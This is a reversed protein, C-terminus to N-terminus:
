FPSEIQRRCEQAYRPYVEAIKSLITSKYKEYLEQKGIKGKLTRLIYDYDVLNHRIFNVVWRQMTPEDVDDFNPRDFYRDYSNYWHQKAAITQWRLENDDDIIEIEIHKCVEDLYAMAKDKQTQISKKASSKRKEAKELAAKYEDTEMIEEVVQEDWLKMPSASRYMPNRKLQPEPLLTDIMTKTWGLELLKTQNYM